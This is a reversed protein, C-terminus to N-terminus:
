SYGETLGFEDCDTFQSTGTSDGLKGGAGTQGDLFQGILEQIHPNFRYESGAGNPGGSPRFFEISASGAQLKKNNSGTGGSTEGTSDQSLEFALEITASVIQDPVTASDIANGYKDMVGTRPWQTTQTPSEDTPSGQWCQKEIIRTATLLARSKSDPDVAVWTLGAVLSDDLYADAEAVTAYSNGTLGTTPTSVM